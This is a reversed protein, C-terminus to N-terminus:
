GHHWGGRAKKGQRGGGGDSGRGGGGGRKSNGGRGKSNSDTSGGGSGRGRGRGRGPGARGARGKGASGASPPCPSPAGNQRLRQRRSGGASGMSAPLTAPSHAFPARGRVERASCAGDKDHSATPAAQHPTGGGQGSRLHEVSHPTYQGAGPQGQGKQQPPQPTRPQACPLPHHQLHPPQTRPRKQGVVVAGGGSVPTLGKRAAIAEHVKRNPTGAGVKHKVGKKNKFGPAGAAEEEGSHVQGKPLHPTCGLAVGASFLQGLLSLKFAPTNGGGQGPGAETPACMSVSVGDAQVAAWKAAEDGENSHDSSFPASELPGGWGLVDCAEQAAMAPAPPQGSAPGAAGPWALLQGVCGTRM